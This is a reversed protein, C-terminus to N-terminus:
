QAPSVATWGPDRGMWGALQDSVPAGDSVEVVPGFPLQERGEAPIRDRVTALTMAALDERLLDRRDLVVALDWAHTTLEGIYSALAAGAPVTGFPATVLTGLDVQPLTTRLEALGEAYTSAIRDDPVVTVHPQDRFDGGTVVTRIRRVVTILHGSLDRLTFDACPTPQDLDATSATVLLEAVVGAADLVQPRLDPMTTTDSM